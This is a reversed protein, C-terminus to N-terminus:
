MCGMADHVLVDVLKCVREALLYAHRRIRRHCPASLKGPRWASRQRDSHGIPWRYHRRPSSSSPRRSDYETRDTCLSDVSECSTVSTSWATSRNMRAWIWALYGECLNYTQRLTGRIAIDGPTQGHKRLIPSSDYAAPSLCSSVSSYVQITSGM